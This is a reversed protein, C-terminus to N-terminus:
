VTGLQWSRAYAHQAEDLTDLRIGLSRLKLDAVREDIASPVDYVAPPLAPGHELLYRASLAQDAFSLDMIAAPSAEAAAQGVLRGEALLYLVRGDALRFETVHQRAPAEALALARLGAVDVEVDFHGSNALIAGDKMLRCHEARIVGAMGTATVFIDGLPAAEAMPLVAFGDMVAELARLAQVECIIVRAGMGRARMAIGRGCWGYGAVVFTAGALLINTARLIGDITNQGTGYRNDFRHKTPTDNVAIVPFRLLGEGALARTRTVGVTTEELGGVVPKGAPRRHLAVILDAGDDM